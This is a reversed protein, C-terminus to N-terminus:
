RVLITHYMGLISIMEWEESELHLGEGGTASPIVLTLLITDRAEMAVLAPARM